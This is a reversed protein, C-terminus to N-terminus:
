YEELNEILILGMVIILGLFAWMENVTVPTWQRFRSKPSLEKDKLTQKAYRDTEAVLSAVTEDTLSDGDAQSLPPEPSSSSSAHQTESSSDDATALRRLTAPDGLDIVEM